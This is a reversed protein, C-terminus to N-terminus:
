GYYIIFVVNPPLITSSTSLVLDTSAITKEIFFIVLSHFVAVRGIATLVLFYLRATFALADSM